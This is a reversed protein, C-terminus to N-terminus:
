QSPATSAAERDAKEDDAASNVFHQTSQQNSAMSALFPVVVFIGGILILGRVCLTMLWRPVSLDQSKKARVNTVPPPPPTTSLELMDGVLTWDPLGPRWVFMRDANSIGALHQRL